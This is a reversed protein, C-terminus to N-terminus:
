DEVIVEETETGAKERVDKMEIKFDRMLVTEYRLEDIDEPRYTGDEQPVAGDKKTKIVLTLPVDGVGSQKQIYFKYNDRTITAPLSYTIATDLERNMVADVKYAFQTKNFDTLQATQVGGTKQRALYTSGNPVIMRVYGHWDSTRWDGYTATHNYFMHTTAVAQEGTFDVEHVIRRKVFYDSKLAGLNADVIMVYDGDWSDDVTGDWGAAAIKTQLAEDYFFMQVDKNNLEAFALDSVDKIHVPTALKEMMDGALRKMINKRAQKAEAPVDEGLYNKEVVEEMKLVANDSNFTVGWVTMPGTIKLAENLVTANVAIVGDFKNSVGGLGLFYRAKAVNTPFDPSFNSDRFKWKKIQIYQTLPWPPTVKATIRQDLLNADEVVFSVVEGDRVTVIGYQGLFGGGPRLEMNNQLMLLYRRTVGDKQLVYDAVAAITDIQVKKDEEIPLLKTVDRFIDVTRLAIQTRNEKIFEKAKPTGYYAGIGIAGLILVFVLKKM